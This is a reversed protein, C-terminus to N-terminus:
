KVGCIYIMENGSDRVMFSLVYYRLRFNYHSFWIWPWILLTIHFSVDGFTEWLYDTNKLQSVFEPVIPNLM